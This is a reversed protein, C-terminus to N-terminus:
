NAIQKVQFMLFEHDPIIRIEPICAFANMRKMGIQKVNLGDAKIFEATFLKAKFICILAAHITVVSIKNNIYLDIVKRIVALRDSKRTFNVLCREKLAKVYSESYIWEGKDERDKKVIISVFHSNEFLLISEIFDDIQTM